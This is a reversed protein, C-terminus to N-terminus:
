HLGYRPQGLVLKLAKRTRNGSSVRAGPVFNQNTVMKGRMCPVQLCSQCAASAMKVEGIRMKKARNMIKFVVVSHKENEDAFLKDESGEAKKM